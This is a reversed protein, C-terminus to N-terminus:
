VWQRTVTSKLNFGTPVDSRVMESESIPGRIHRFRIFSVTSGSIYKREREAKQIGTVHYVATNKLHTCNILEYSSPTPDYHQDNGTMLHAVSFQLKFGDSKDLFGTSPITRGYSLCCTVNRYKKSLELKPLVESPSMHPMYHALDEEHLAERPQVKFGSNWIVPEQSLIDKRNRLYQHCVEKNKLHQSGADATKHFSTRRLLYQVDCWSYSSITVSFRFCFGQFWARHQTNTAGLLSANDKINCISLHCLWRSLDRRSNSIVTGRDKRYMQWRLQIVTQWIGGYNMSVISFSMMCAASEKLRWIYLWSSSPPIRSDHPDYVPWHGQIGGLIWDQHKSHVAMQGICQAISSCEGDHRMGKSKLNFETTSFAPIFSECVPYQGTQSDSHRGEQGWLLSNRHRTNRVM